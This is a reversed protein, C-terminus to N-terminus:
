DLLLNYVPIMGAQWKFFKGWIDFQSETYVYEDWVLLAGGPAPGAAVGWGWGGSGDRDPFEALSYIRFALGDPRGDAFFYRGWSGDLDSSHPPGAGFVLLFRQRVPDFVAKYSVGRYEMPDPSFTLTQPELDGNGNLFRGTVWDWMVLFRGQIPDCALSNFYSTATYTGFFIEGGFFSGNPNVLQGLVNSYDEAWTVLFRRNRPDFAIQAGLKQHPEEPPHSTINIEGGQPSGDHSVFRAKIESVNLADWNQWIVLYRRSVPDFAAGCFGGEETILFPDGAPSGDAHRLQGFTGQYDVVWLVLYLQSQPDFPGIFHPFITAEVILFVSNQSGEPSVVRGYIDSLQNNNENAQTWTVLFRHNVPDAAVQPNIQEGAQNCISVLPGKRVSAGAENATISLGLVLCLGLRILMQLLYGINLTKWDM